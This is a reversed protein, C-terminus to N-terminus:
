PQIVSLLGGQGSRQHIIRALHPSVDTDPDPDYFSLVTEKPLRRCYDSFMQRIEDSNPETFIFRAQLSILAETDGALYAQRRLDLYEENFM